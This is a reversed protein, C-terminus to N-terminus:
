KKVGIIHIFRIDIWNYNSLNYNFRDYTHTAIKIENNNDKRVNETVLLSHNYSKGGNFSLQVVDGAEIDKEEVEEGYPGQTKNNILFNYLFNVGTWSATRKNSNIYYWGYIPIYNMTNAGAFICQSVFNTCDGGYKDFDLYKPNRKFAWEKAYNLAKIRDYDMESKRISM